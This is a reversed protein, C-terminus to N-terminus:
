GKIFEKPIVEDRVDMKGTVANSILSKRYEQLLCITEKKNKISKKIKSEQIEIFNSIKEQEAISPLVIYNDRVDTKNLKPQASSIAKLELQEHLYKSKLTYFIFKNDIDRSFKILLMNPALSCFESPKETFMFASGTYAGVNALLIEGGFLKSKSLYEYTTKSIWIGQNKFNKRIDTLRILRAYGSELYTVNKALDAFSGNATYDTLVDIIYRLKKVIWHEPVQGIWEVGSDKMPVDPNLGKTVAQNIMAEKKEELLAIMKENKKILEDILSTKYDLYNAIQTQESLPPKPFKEENLDKQTMSPVASGYSHLDFRINQSQYFFFKPNTDPLIETYYATDVTWFPENVFQPVDITGKRGLLISPQDYLYKTSKGFVGGTGYIPFTGNENDRVNKPDKGNKITAFYKLPAVEWNEPIEEFWENPTPKYNSYKKM